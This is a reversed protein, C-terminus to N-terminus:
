KYATNKKDQPRVEVVADEPSKTAGMHWMLSVFSPGDIRLRGEPSAIMLASQLRAISLAHKNREAKHEKFQASQGASQFCLLVNQYRYHRSWLM